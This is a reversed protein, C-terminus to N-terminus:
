GPPRRDVTVFVTGIDDPDQASAGLTVTGFWLGPETLEDWTLPVTFETGAGIPEAPTPEGVTLNGEDEVPVATVLTVTDTGSASAQWNQVLVWYEAGAGPDPTFDCEEDSAGAASVCVLTDANPTTGTGVYLDLDPATPDMLTAVVRQAGEPVTVLTTWAGDGNFPDGNTPDQPISLGTETGLTLGTVETQLDTVSSASRIPATSATGAEEGATVTVEDALQATSPLAAVPLHAEPAASGDQPTLVVQGFAYADLDAGAVDATITLVQTRDPRDFTFTAPEVTM